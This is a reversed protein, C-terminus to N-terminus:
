GELEPISGELLIDGRWADVLVFFRFLQTEPIGSSGLVAWYLRRGQCVLRPSFAEVVQMSVPLRHSFAERARAVAEEATLQAVTPLASAPFDFVDLNWELVLGSRADSTVVLMEGLVPIGRVTRLWTSVHRDGASRTGSFTLESRIEPALRSLIRAAAAQPDGKGGKETVSIDSSPRRFGFVHVQGTTGFDSFFLRVIATKGSRTFKAAARGREYDFSVRTQCYQPIRAERLYACATKILAARLRVDEITVDSLEGKHGTAVSPITLCAALGVAILASVRVKVSVESLAM